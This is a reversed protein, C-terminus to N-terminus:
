KQRRLREAGMLLVPQVLGCIVEATAEKFGPFSLVNVELGPVVINGGVGSTRSVRQLPTKGM